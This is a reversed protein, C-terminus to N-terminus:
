ILGQFMPPVVDMVRQGDEVRSVKKMVEVTRAIPSYSRVPPLARPSKFSLARLPRKAAGKGGKVDDCQAARTRGSSSLKKEGAARNVEKNYYRMSRAAVIGSLAIM